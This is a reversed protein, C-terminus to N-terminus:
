ICNMISANSIGDITYTFNDEFEECNNHTVNVVTNSNALTAHTALKSQFM